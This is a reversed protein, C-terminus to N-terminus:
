KWPLPEFSGGVLLLILLNTLLLLCGHDLVQTRTEWTFIFVDRIMRELM